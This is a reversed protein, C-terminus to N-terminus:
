TTTRPWTTSPCCPRTAPGLLRFPLFFGFLVHCELPSPTAVTDDFLVYPLPDGLTDRSM